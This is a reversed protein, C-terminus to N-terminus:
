SLQTVDFQGSFLVAHSFCFSAKWLCIFNIVLEKTFHMKKTIAKYFSELPFYLLNIHYYWWEWEVLFWWVHNVFKSTTMTKRKKNEHLAMRMTKIMEAKKRHIRFCLFNNRTLSSSIFIFPLLFLSIKKHYYNFIRLICSALYFFNDITRNNSSTQLVEVNVCRM